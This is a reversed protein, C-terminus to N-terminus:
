GSLGMLHHRSRNFVWILFSKFSILFSRCAHVGRAAELENPGYKELNQSAQESTLGKKLDTGFHAAIEEPSYKWFKKESSPQEM